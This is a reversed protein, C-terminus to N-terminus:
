KPNSFHFEIIEKLSQRDYVKYSDPQQSYFWGQKMKTTKSHFVGLSRDIGNWFFGKQYIKNKEYFYIYFYVLRYNQYLEEAVVQNNKYFIKWYYSAYPKELSSIFTAKQIQLSHYDKIWTTAIKVSDFYSEALYGQVAILNFLIWFLKSKM